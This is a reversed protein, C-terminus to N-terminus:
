QPRVRGPEALAQALVQCLVRAVQAHDHACASRSSSFSSYQASEQAIQTCSPKADPDPPPDPLYKSDPATSVGAPISSVLLINPDLLSASFISPNFRTIATLLSWDHCLM